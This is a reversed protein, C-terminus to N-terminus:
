KGWREAKPEPLLIDYDSQNENGKNNTQFVVIQIEDRLDSIVGACHDQDEKAKKGWLAGIKRNVM